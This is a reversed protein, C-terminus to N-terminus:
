RIAEHSGEYVAYPGKRTLRVFDFVTLSRRSGFGERFRQCEFFEMQTPPIWGGLVRGLGVVRSSGRGVEGADSYPPRSAAHIVGSANAM